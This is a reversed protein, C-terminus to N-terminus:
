IFVSFEKIGVSKMIEAIRNLDESVIPNEQDDVLMHQMQNKDTLMVFWQATSSPNKRVHGQLWFKNKGAEIAKTLRM